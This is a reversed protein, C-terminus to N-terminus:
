TAIVLTLIIRQFFTDIGYSVYVL